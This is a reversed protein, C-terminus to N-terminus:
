LYPQEHTVTDNNITQLVKLAKDFRTITLEIEKRKNVVVSDDVLHVSMKEIDVYEHLKKYVLTVFMLHCQMPVYDSFRSISIDSYVKLAKQIFLVPDNTELLKVQDAYAPNQTFIFLEAQLMKEIMDVADEKQKRLFDEIVLKTAHLLPPYRNKLQRHIITDMVSRIYEHIEDVLENCAVRFPDIHTEIYLQNFAVHSMFNFLMISKSEDIAVQIRDIFDISDFDPQSAKLKSNFRRYMEFTRPSIHLQTEELCDDVSKALSKFESVVSIVIKLMHQIKQVDNHFEPAFSQYNVRLENSRITLNSIMQPIFADIAQSQLESIRKILTNVGWYQNNVGIFHNDTEFFNKEMDRVKSVSSDKDDPTRNRVAIFGLGMKVNNGDGRLKEAIRTDTKCLDVKTVVGLTRKGLPDIAKALKIAESNAFDDLAPVVCLIIMQENAIYKKVLNVTATHIDVQEDNVSLHTIGPLDILTMTSCDSSVVKVHIPKDLVCGNSGAIKNTLELIKQPLQDIDRIKTGHKDLDPDDGIIAYKDVNAKHVLRLILPVRTTINEGSPLHVNSLSELLSSKGASQAGAVVIGPVEINEAKLDARIQEIADLKPQAENLLFLPSPKSSGVTAHRIKKFKRKMIDYYRSDM